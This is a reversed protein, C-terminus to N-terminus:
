NKICRVSFGYTKSYLDRGREIGDNGFSIFRLWATSLDNQYSTWFVACTGAPAYSGNNPQRYGGFLGRFLGSESRLTVGEDTGLWGTTTNDDPFTLVCTLSAGGNSICTTRELLTFESNTPIHWGTPCIGKSGAVSSGCMAQSWQYLGGYIDCNSQSGDSCYKKISNASSCDSGQPPGAVVLTGINMNQQMWCQTGIQVTAYSQDDRTDILGDGCVWSEDQTSTATSTGISIEVNLEAHPATSIIHRTPNEMIQYGTGDITTAQPDKPIASLYAPVLASLDALGNCDIGESTSATGTDCIEMLTTTPMSAPYYGKDIYYQQVANSIQKIDSVRETNRVVALQRGPNIAIIVIGALLVIIGVVLLIELM